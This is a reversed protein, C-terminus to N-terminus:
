PPIKANVGITIVDFSSKLDLSNAFTDEFHFLTNGHTVSNFFNTNGFDYHNVEIFASWGPAFAFSFGGGFTLGSLSLTDTGILNAAFAGAPVNFTVQWSSWAGGVKGYFLARPDFVVVGVRGTVSALWETKVSVIGDGLPTHHTASGNIDAGAAMGQVGIVLNGFQLDCGIQGGFVAGSTDIGTTATFTTSSSHTFTSANRQTFDSKGWGWGGNVGAYCGTWSFVPLPAAGRNPQVRERANASGALVLACLAVGCLLGKKM